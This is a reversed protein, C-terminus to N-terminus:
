LEAAIGVTPIIGILEHTEVTQDRHNYRIYTENKRNYINQIDIYLSLTWATFQWRRDVRVDLSHAPPFRATYIKSVDQGGHADFPTYPKGTAFRFKMGYEWEQNPKAGVGLNVIVRQDFAGPRDVGDLATFRVDSVSVSMLGYYPTSTFQKQVCLELGRSHGTGSSIMPDFGFSSFNDAFGFDYGVGTNSQILYPRTLSTPYDFYKKLYGEVTVKWSDAFLQEIGLAYQDLRLMKLYTNYWNSMLWIYAPTQYYRGINGTLTLSPTLLYSSSFRASYETSFHLLDFRDVRGGLTTRLRDTVQQSVQVFAASKLSMNHTNVSTGLFDERFSTEFASLHAVSAINVSTIQGGVVFETKKWPQTVLELTSSLEREKSVQTFIPVLLTDDQSDDYDIYSLNVGARFYGGSFQHRWAFGGVMQHQNSELIGSNDSRDKPTDNFLHLYDLAGAIIFSLDDTADIRYTAKGLLDYYEPVFSLGAAKFILDLYTRRVALFGSGRDALPGEVSAGFQTASIDIKGGIRDTRGNKLDINFVSSLKDGYRVGFGGASFSTKDVFDVNIFSVPGGSVGQTSFHNITPFQFGDVLYLNESPAGGRVVLDNRGAEVRAVGPLISATRIVDDFGGPQHRIEESSLTEVSMPLDPSRDMYEAVVEKQQLQVPMEQLACRLTQPKQSSVEVQNLIIPAFGVVSVKVRYRGVPINTLVFEGLSDSIVGFSTGLFVVNAGTIPENTLYNYVKGEVRGTKEQARSLQVVCVSLLLLFYAITGPSRFLNM